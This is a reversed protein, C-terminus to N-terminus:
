DRDANTEGKKAPTSARAGVHVAAALVEVPTGCPGPETGIVAIEGADLLEKVRGCVSSVRMDLARAISERSAGCFCVTTLYDLVRQRQHGARPAADAAAM